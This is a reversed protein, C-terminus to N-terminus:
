MFILYQIAAADTSKDARRYLEVAQIRGHVGGSQLLHAAYKALLGEIQPFSHRQALEVAADWQNLKICADIAHKIQIRSDHM